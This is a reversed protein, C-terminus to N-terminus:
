TSINLHSVNKKTCHDFTLIFLNSPQPGHAFISRFQVTVMIPHFGADIQRNHDATLKTMTLKPRLSNGEM